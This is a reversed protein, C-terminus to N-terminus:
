SPVTTASGRQSEHWELSAVKGPSNSIIQVSSLERVAPTGFSPLGLRRYLLSEIPSKLFPACAAIILLIEEIRIRIPRTDIKEQRYPRLTHFLQPSLSVYWMYAPMMDGAVNESMPNFSRLVLVKFIGAVAALLGLGMLVSILAKEVPSRSLRWILVM